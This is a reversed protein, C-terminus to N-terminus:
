NNSRTKRDNPETAESGPFESGPPYRDHTARDVRYFKGAIRLYPDEDDHVLYPVPICIVSKGTSTCFPIFTTYTTPPDIKRSEVTGPPITETGCGSLVLAVVLLAFLRRM